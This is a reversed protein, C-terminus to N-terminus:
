KIGGGSEARGGHVVPGGLGQILGRSTTPKVHNGAREGGRRTLERSQNTGEELRIERPSPRGGIHADARPRTLRTLPQGIRRHRGGGREKKTGKQVAKKATQRAEEGASMSFVVDIV